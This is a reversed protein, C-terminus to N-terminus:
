VGKLWKPPRGRGTKWQPQSHHRKRTRLRTAIFHARCYRSTDKGRRLVKRHCAACLGKRRQKLQWRRQRSITIM